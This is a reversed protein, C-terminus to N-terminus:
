KSMLKLASDKIATLGSEDFIGRSLVRLGVVLTLLSKSSKDPNVCKPIQGLEQGQVITRLFFREFDSLALVVLDRVELCHHPLELATNVLLCGKREGDTLSESILGDFLTSIMLVPDNLEELRALTKTRNNRDYRLLAMIFLKKKSGFANYLSGKNISMAHILDSISAAEYGKNWFVRTAQAIAEDLDFSKEWPM